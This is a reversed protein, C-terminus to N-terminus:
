IFWKALIAKFTYSSYFYCYFMQVSKCPPHQCSRTFGHNLLFQKSKRKARHHQLIAHRNTHSRADTGPIGLGGLIVRAYTEPVREHVAKIVALIRNPLMVFWVAAFCSYVKEGGGGLFFFKMTFSLSPQGTTNNLSKIMKKSDTSYINNDLGASSQKGCPLVCVTCVCVCVFM